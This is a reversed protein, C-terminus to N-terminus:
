IPLEGLASVAGQLSVRAENLAEVGSANIAFYKKARGGRVATAAGMRSSVYGKRELRGLATYIAGVAVTRGTRKEVEQRITVGYANERLRVLAMLIEREFHGLRASRGM